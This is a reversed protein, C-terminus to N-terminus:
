SGQQRLVKARLVESTRGRFTLKLRQGPELDQPGLHKRGGFRAKDQTVLEPIARPDITGIAKGDVKELVLYGAPDIAAIVVKLTRNPAPAGEPARNSPANESHFAVKAANAADVAASTKSKAAAPPALLLLALAAVLNRIM